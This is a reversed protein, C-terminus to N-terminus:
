PPQPEGVLGGLAQRAPLDCPQLPVVRPSGRPHLLALEVSADLAEDAAGLVHGSAVSRFGRNLGTILGTAANRDSRAILALALFSFVRWKRAKHSRSFPSSGEVKQM